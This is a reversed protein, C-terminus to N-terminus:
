PHIQGPCICDPKLVGSPGHSAAIIKYDCNLLAIPRWNTLERPDESTNDLSGSQLDAEAYPEKKYLLRYYTSRMCVPLKGEVKVEKYVAKLLRHLPPCHGSGSM